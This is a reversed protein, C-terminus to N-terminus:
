EEGLARIIPTDTFGPHIVGCRVGHFMSESMLTAAMGELARKCGAYSIQGEQGRSSTSGVFIVTGQIGEPPSWRNMERAFRDRAIGAIMELAWYTPAILDMEVLRRFDERPYLTGVGVSDVTVALGDKTIEAAPVCIRVIGLGSSVEDFVRRRFVEDAVEGVFAVGQVRHNTFKTIAEALECVRPSQDVLAISQVGHRVLELSVAEGIGSGAGTVLAVTSQIEM